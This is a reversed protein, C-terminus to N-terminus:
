RGVDRRMLLRYAAASSVILYGVGVMVATSLAGVYRPEVALGHWADFGSTLLLRRMTESGDIYSGLQMALAAVVPVGVGVVSSRTAVSLLVALATFGWAAPLVSAWSLVVLRAAAGPALLGGSLDVLPQAGVGLLGAAASSAGLVAIALTSFALATLLKAAFVDNKTCSRTLISTWTGYRDEASFIDGGVISALVPIAWLAAFGLVVLPTAFGSDRLGRGFLTDEPLADQIRIAMVFAFPGIVSTTLVARVTRQARLKQWEVRWVAGLGRATM